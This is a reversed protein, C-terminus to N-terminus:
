IGLRARVVSALSLAVIRMLAWVSGGPVMSAISTAGVAGPVAEVEETWESVREPAVARLQFTYKVGDQLGDVQWRAGPPVPSSEWDGSDVRRWRVEYGTIREDRWPDWALDVAGATPSAALAM